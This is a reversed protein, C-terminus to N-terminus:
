LKDFLPIFMLKRGEELLQDMLIIEFTARSLVSYHVTPHHLGTFPFRPHASAVRDFLLQSYNDYSFSGRYTVFRSQLTIQQEETLSDLYRWFHLVTLWNKGLAKRPNQLECEFNRYLRSNPINM